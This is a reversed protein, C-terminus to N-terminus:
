KQDFTSTVFGRIIYTAGDETIRRDSTWISKKATNEKQKMYIYM